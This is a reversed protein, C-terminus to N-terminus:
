IRERNHSQIFLVKMSRSHIGKYFILFSFTVSVNFNEGPDNQYHLPIVAFCLLSVTVFLILLIVAWWEGSLIYSYGHMLLAIAAVGFTIGVFTAVLVCRGPPVRYLHWLIPWQRYREKLVGGEQPSYVSVADATILEQDTPVIVQTDYKLETSDSLEAPQSSVYNICYGGPRYRLVVVAAAVIGYACLVGISMFAVLDELTFFIDLLAVVFGFIIGATVPVQTRQNIKALFEFLIGDSAMAYLSRPLCFLSTLICTFTASLAGVFVVWVAWEVGHIAFAQSFAASPNIDQYPVMLTLIASPVMYLVTIVVISMIMAIPISKKPNLTEESSIAIVDFGVYSYFCTAAGTIVGSIGYPAFGGEQKWNEIDVYLAGVGIIIGIVALNFFLFINNMISSTGIGLLVFLLVFLCYGAGLLDPYPAIYPISWEEGGLIYTITFNSYAGGCMSDIYGSFSRGVSAASATYELIMNWGILFAWIEGITVYTFLYASGTRPIRCSFEAYCLSAFLSAVGAIFYSVFVAPGSYKTAVVGTLIYLGAGFMSGIGLLTLDLTGLYRRLPTVYTDEDSRFKKKRSIRQLVTLCSCSSESKREAM